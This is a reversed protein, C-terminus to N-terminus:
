HEFALILFTVKENCVNRFIANLVILRFSLQEGFGYTRSHNILCGTYPVVYCHVFSKYRKIM